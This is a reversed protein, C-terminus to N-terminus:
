SELVHIQGIAFPSIIICTCTCSLMRFVHMTYLTMFNVNEEFTAELNLSKVFMSYIYLHSKSSSVAIIGLGNSWAINTVAGIVTYFPSNIICTCTSQSRPCKQYVYLVHVVLFSIGLVHVCCFLLFCCIVVVAKHIILIGSDPLRLDVSINLSLEMPLDVSAKHM